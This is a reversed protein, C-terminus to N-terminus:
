MVTGFIHPSESKMNKAIWKVISSWDAKLSDEDLFLENSKDDPVEEDEKLLISTTARDLSKKRKRAQDQFSQFFDEGPADPCLWIGFRTEDWKISIRLKKSSLGPQNTSVASTSAATTVTAHYPNPQSTGPQTPQPVFFTSPPMHPSYRHNEMSGGPASPASNM